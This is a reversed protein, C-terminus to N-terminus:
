MSINHLKEMDGGLFWIICYAGKSRMPHSRDSTRIPGVPYRTTCLQPHFFSLYRSHRAMQPSVISFIMLCCAKHTFSPVKEEVYGRVRGRSV